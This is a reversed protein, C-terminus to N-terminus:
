AFFIDTENPPSKSAEEGRVVTRPRLGYGSSVAAEEKRAWFDAFDGEPTIHRMINVWTKLIHHAEYEQFDVGAKNSIVDLLQSQRCVNEVIGHDRGQFPGGLSKRCQLQEVEVDDSVGVYGKKKPQSVLM